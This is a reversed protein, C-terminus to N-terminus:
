SYEDRTVMRATDAGKDDRRTPVMRAGPYYLTRFREWDRLGAPGSIVDYVASIIHEVADVDGPRASSAPAPANATPSTSPAPSPAPDQAIANWCALGLCVSFVRLIAKRM